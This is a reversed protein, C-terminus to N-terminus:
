QPLIKGAPDAAAALDFLRDVRRDHDLHSLEKMIDDSAEVRRYGKDAMCTRVVNNMMRHKEQSGFFGAFFSNAALAYINASYVYYQPARVGDALKDCETFEAVFAARDVNAKHYYFPKAAWGASGPVIAAMMLVAFAAARKM